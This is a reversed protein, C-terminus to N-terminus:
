SDDSLGKSLFDIAHPHNFVKHLLAGMEDPCYNNVKEDLLGFRFGKFRCGLALLAEKANQINELKDDVMVITKDLDKHFKLYEKLVKGKNFGNCFLVGKEYHGFETENLVFRRKERGERAFNLGIMELQRHTVEVVDDSRATLLTTLVGRKEVEALLEPIGQEIFQVRIVMQIAKWLYSAKLLATKEDMGGMMYEKAVHREWQESGINQYPEILTNDIDLFLLTKSDTIHELLDHLSHLDGIFHTM